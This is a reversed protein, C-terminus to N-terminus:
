YGLPPSPYLDFLPYTPFPFPVPRSPSLYPLPLTCTPFPISLSPSLNSIPYNPFSILPCSSFYPLPLNLPLPSPQYPILFIPTLSSCFPCPLLFSPFNFPFTLPLYQSPLTTLSPSRLFSLFYISPQCIFFHLFPLRKGWYNYHLMFFTNFIIIFSYKSNLLKELYDFRCISFFNIKPVQLLILLCGGLYLSPFHIGLFWISMCIILRLKKAM